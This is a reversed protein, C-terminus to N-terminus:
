QLNRMGERNLRKQSTTQTKHTKSQHESSSSTSRHLSCLASDLSPLLPLLLCRSPSLPGRGHPPRTDRRRSCTCIVMMDIDNEIAVNPTPVPSHTHRHAYHLLYHPTALTPKTRSVLLLLDSILQITIYIHSFCLFLYGNIKNFM